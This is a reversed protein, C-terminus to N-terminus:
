VLATVTSLGVLCPYRESPDGPVTTPPKQYTARLGMRCMLNLVRERTISIGEQALYDVMRLSSNCPDNLFLVDIRAM